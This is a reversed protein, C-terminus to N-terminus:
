HVINPPSRGAFFDILNTVAMQGMEERVKLVSTGLHPLLVVNELAKLADPVHPEFEYVDLGAGAIRGETLVAILAAEDIIEGRSVNILIGEPRMAALVAANIMHHTAPTSALAVVVFNAAACVEGATKLRRAPVGCDKIPSRNLYVVRMGFGSHCRRAVAQGIRGMGIIGVTSGTVQQGLMQTPQWGEWNGSRVLREGESTRRAAMLLLALAIDATADTVAGPTNTVIIGHRAAAGVDIHNYGVGFNALIRCRPRAVEQFAEADFADALTPLVGDYTALSASAEARSMPVEGRTDVTFHDRARDLVADPMRRSILIAPKPSM